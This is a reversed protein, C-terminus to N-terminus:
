LLALKGVLERWGLSWDEVVGWQRYARTAVEAAVWLAVLLVEEDHLSPIGRQRRYMRSFGDLRRISLDPKALLAPALLSLPFLFEDTFSTTSWHSHEWDIVTFEDGLLRCNGPWLDGHILFEIAPKASQGTVHDGAARLRREVRDPPEFVESFIDPIEPPREFEREVPRESHSHLQALWYALRESFTAREVDALGSWSRDADAFVSIMHVDVDDVLALPQVITRAMEPPVARRIEILRRYEERVVWGFRRDRSTKIVVIPKGSYTSIGYLVVSTANARGTAELVWELSPPESGFWDLWHGVVFETLM